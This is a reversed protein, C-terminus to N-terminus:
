LEVDGARGLLKWPQTIETSSKKAFKGAIVRTGELINGACLIAVKWFKMWLNSEFKSGLRRRPSEKRVERINVGSTKLRRLRGGM